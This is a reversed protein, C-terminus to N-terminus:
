CYPYVRGHKRDRGSMSLKESSRTMLVIPDWATKEHPRYRQRFHHRFARLITCVGASLIKKIATFARVLTDLTACVDDINEGGKTASRKVPLLVDNSKQRVIQNEVLKHNNKYSLLASTLLPSDSWLNNIIM